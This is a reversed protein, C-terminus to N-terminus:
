LCRKRAPVPLQQRNVLALGLCTLGLLIVFRGGCATGSFEINRSGPMAQTAAISSMALAGLVLIKMFTYKM